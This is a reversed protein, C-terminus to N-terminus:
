FTAGHWIKSYSLKEYEKNIDDQTLFQNIYFNFNDIGGTYWSQFSPPNFGDFGYRCGVCFHSGNSTISWTSFFPGGGERVIPAGSYVQIGDVWADYVGGSRNINMAYLHWCGDHPISPLYMDAYQSEVGAVIRFFLTDSVCNLIYGGPYSEDLATKAFVAQGAGQLQFWKLLVMWSFNQTTLELVSGDMIYAKNPQGGFYAGATEEGEIYSPSSDTSLDHGNGSSDLLNNEFLYQVSPTM